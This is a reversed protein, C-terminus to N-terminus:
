FKVSVTGLVARQLAAPSVAIADGVYEKHSRHLLNSGVVAFEIKDSLKWAVRLTLDMYAPIKYDPISDVYRVYSDFDINYPLSILSRLFAQNRPDVRGNNGLSLSGEAIDIESTMWSYWGQLTWSHMPRWTNLAEFGYSRLENQNAFQYPIEVRNGSVFPAGQALNSLNDYRNYFTAIDFTYNKAPAARYGIEFANLIESKVASSGVAFVSAPVGSDTPVTQLLLRGDDQIRSPTRVARSFGTWLTHTDSPVWAVRATPQYEFGSYSNTEFKSGLTIRVANDFLKTENQVFGSYLESVKSSKLFEISGTKPLFDRTNRYNLGFILQNYASLPLLYQADFDAIEYREGHILDYRQTRDFYGQVTLQQGDSFERSWHAVINNGDFHTQKQELSPSFSALSPTLARLGDTGKYIDGHVSATDRGEKYDFRAGTQGSEMQDYADVGAIQASRDRNYYKGYIRAASTDSIKAGYRVNALARDENGAGVTVAGGLTDNANKTIINIVGNVANAGWVSAGPGRIVEIREIDELRTDQADWYVGSFLPTYVSRGDILVLLKNAFLSNSGRATIAWRNSDIQAVHLGPVLRLLEPITNSGSRRIDEHTLVFLASSVESATEGRKSVSTVKVEMLDELSMDTIDGGPTAEAFACSAALTLGLLPKLIRSAALKSIKM